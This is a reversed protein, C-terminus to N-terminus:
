DFVSRKPLGTGSTKPDSGFSTFELRLVTMTPCDLSSGPGFINLQILTQLSRPGNWFRLTRIILGNLLSEPQTNPDNDHQFVIDDKELGYWELTGLFDEKLIDVYLAANLTDHIRVLNGIGQATFCSWVMM